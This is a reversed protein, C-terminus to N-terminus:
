QVVQVEKVSADTATGSAVYGIAGPNSAVFALVDADSGKTMPPRRNKQMERMWYMRVAAVPQSLIGQSFAARVPSQLSQDVPVLVQGNALRNTRGLFVDALTEKQIQTGPVAPHTVVKITVTADAGGVASGIMLAFAFPMLRKKM